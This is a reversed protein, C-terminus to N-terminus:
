DASRWRYLWYWWSPTLRQVEPRADAGKRIVRWRTGDLGSFQIEVRSHMTEYYLQKQWQPQKRKYKTRLAEDVVFANVKETPSIAPIPPSWDSGGVRLQVDIAPGTGGNSLTWGLHALSEFEALGQQYSFSDNIVVPRYAVGAAKAAWAAALASGVASGGGVIGVVDGVSV